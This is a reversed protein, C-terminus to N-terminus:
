PVRTSGVFSNSPNLLSLGSARKCAAVGVPGVGADPGSAPYLVFCWCSFPPPSYPLKVIVCLLINSSPKRKGVETQVQELCLLLTVEWGQARRSSTEVTSKAYMRIVDFWSCRMPKSHCVAQQFNSRVQLRMNAVNQSIPTTRCPYTCLVMFWRVVIDVVTTDIALSLFTLM